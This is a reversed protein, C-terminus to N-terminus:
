SSSASRAMRRWKKIGSREGNKVLEARAVLTADAVGSTICEPILLPQDDGSGPSEAVAASVQEAFWRGRRGAPPDIPVRRSGGRGRLSGRRTPPAELQLIVTCVVELPLRSQHRHHLNGPQLPDAGALGATLGAKNPPM